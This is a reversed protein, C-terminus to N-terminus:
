RMTSHSIAITSRREVSRPPLAVIACSVASVIEAFRGDDSTSAPGTSSRNQLMGHCISGPEDRQKTRTGNDGVWVERGGVTNGRWPHKRERNLPATVLDILSDGAPVNRDTM